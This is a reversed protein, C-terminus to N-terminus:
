AAQPLAKWVSKSLQVEVHRRKGRATRESIFEEAKAILLGALRDLSNRHEPTLFDEEPHSKLFRMFQHLIIMRFGLDEAYTAMVPERKQERESITAQRSVGLLLALRTQTLHAAERLFRTERGTLRSSKHLLVIAIVQLLQWEKVVQFLSKACTPCRAKRVGGGYLWVNPLGSERYQYESVEEWRVGDAGCVPCQTRLKTM